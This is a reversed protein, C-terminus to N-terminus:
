CNLVTGRLSNDSTSGSAIRVSTSASRFTVEFVEGAVVPQTPPFAV